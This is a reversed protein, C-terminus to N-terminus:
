SIGTDQDIIYAKGGSLEIALVVEEATEPSYAFMCGGGGSGNIKGGLAGADLAAELMAEVKPTSVQLM